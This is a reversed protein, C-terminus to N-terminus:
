SASEGREMMQFIETLNPNEIVPPLYGGRNKAVVTATSSTLLKRTAEDGDQEIYLYGLLDMAGQIFQKFNKGSALPNVMDEEHEPIEAHAIVVTHMPLARFMTVLKTADNLAKQWDNMSPLNDYARKVNPFKRVIEDMVLRQLEGLPDLVVTKFPHEGSSLYKYVKRVDAMSGIKVVRAHKNGSVRASAIAGEEFDMILPAPASSALTTKGAGPQGYIMANIHHADPNSPDILQLGFAEAGQPEEIGDELSLDREDTIFEEYEEPTLPRKTTKPQDDSSKSKSKAM